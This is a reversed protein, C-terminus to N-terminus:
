GPQDAESGDYTLPQPGSAVVTFLSDLGSVRKRAPNGTISPVGSMVTLAAATSTAAGFVNTV